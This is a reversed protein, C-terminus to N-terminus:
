KEAILFLETNERQPISNYCPELTQIRLVKQFLQRYETENGGFPPNVPFERNFLLGVLKGNGKLLSNIKQVYSERKSPHIACFFTQELILDYSGTHSFFDGTLITLGPYQDTPFKESLKRTLDPAIDLITIHTFGKQLLYMAEYANGAGPIFIEIDTDTLTDIYEKIPRSVTGIDWGTQEQLYRDNWYNASLFDPETM